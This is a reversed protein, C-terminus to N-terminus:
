WLAPVPQNTEQASQTNTTGDQGVATQPAQATTQTNSRNQTSNPAQATTQAPQSLRQRQNTPQVVTGEPSTGVQNTARNQGLFPFRWGIAAGALAALAIVGIFLGIFRNM